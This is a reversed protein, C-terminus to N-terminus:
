IRLGNYSGVMTTTTRLRTLQDNDLGDFINAVANRRGGGGNVNLIQGIHGNQAGNLHAAAAVLYVNRLSSATARTADDDDTTSTIITPANRRQADFESGNTSSSNGRERQNRANM